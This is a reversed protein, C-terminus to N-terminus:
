YVFYICTYTFFICFIRVRQFSSIVDRAHNLKTVRTPVITFKPVLINQRNASTKGENQLPSILQDWLILTFNERYCAMYACLSLLPVATSMRLMPRPPHHVGHGLWQVALFSGCYATCSCWYNASFWCVSSGDHPESHQPAALQQNASLQCLKCVKRFLKLDYITHVSHRNLTQSTLLQAAYILQIM